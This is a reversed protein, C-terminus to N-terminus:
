PTSPPRVSHIAESMRRVWAWVAAPNEEGQELRHLREVLASGVVVADAWRAAVAAQEPTSIGFGLALPLPTHRRM